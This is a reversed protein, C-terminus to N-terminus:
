GTKPIAISTLHSQLVFLGGRLCGVISVKVDADIFLSISWIKKQINRSGVPRTHELCTIPSPDHEQDLTGEQKCNRFPILVM